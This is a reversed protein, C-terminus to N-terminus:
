KGSGEYPPFFYQFTTLIIYITLYQSKQPPGQPSLYLCSIIYPTVPLVEWDMNFPCQEM